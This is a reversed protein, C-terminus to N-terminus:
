AALERRDGSWRRRDGRAIPVPRRWFLM